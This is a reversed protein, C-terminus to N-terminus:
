NKSSGGYQKGHHSYWNVNSGSTCLHGGKEVNRWDHSIKTQQNTDQFKVSNSANSIKIQIYEPIDM